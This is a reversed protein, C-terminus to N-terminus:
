GAGTAELLVLVSTATSSTRVDVAGRWRDGRIQGVARDPTSPPSSVHEFRAAGTLPGLAELAAEAAEVAPLASVELRYWAVAEGERGFSGSDILRWGSPWLVAPEPPGPPRRAPPRRPTGPEAAAEIAATGPLGPPDETEPAPPGPGTCAALLAGLVALLVLAHPDFGRM